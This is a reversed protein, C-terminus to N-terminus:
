SVPQCVEFIPPLLHAIQEGIEAFVASSQRICNLTGTIVRRTQLQCGVPWADKVAKEFRLWQCREVTQLLRQKM